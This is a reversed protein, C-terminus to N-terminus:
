SGSTSFLLGLALAVGALFLAWSWRYCRALNAPATKVGFTFFRNSRLVPLKAFLLLGVSSFMLAISVAFCWVRLRGILDFLFFFVEVSVAVILVVVTLGWHELFKVWQYRHSNRKPEM